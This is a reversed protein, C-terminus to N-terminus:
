INPELCCHWITFSVDVFCQDLTILTATPLLYRVKFSIGCTKALKNSLEAIHYKGDLRKDLLVRLFKVCKVM